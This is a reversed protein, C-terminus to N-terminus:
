EVQKNIRKLYTYTPYSWGLAELLSLINIICASRYRKWRIMSSDDGSYLQRFSCTFENNCHTQQVTDFSGRLQDEIEATTTDNALQVLLCGGLTIYELFLEIVPLLNNRNLHSFRTHTTVTMCISYRLTTRTLLSTLRRRHPQDPDIDVVALLALAEPSAGLTSTLAFINLM